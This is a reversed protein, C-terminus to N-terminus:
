AAIIVRVADLRATAQEIAELTLERFAAFHAIEEERITHNVKRLEILRNLEHDYASTAKTKGAVRCQELRKDAIARSSTLM